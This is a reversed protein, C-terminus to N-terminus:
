PLEYSEAYKAIELSWTRKVKNLLVKMKNGTLTKKEIYSSSQKTIFKVTICGNLRAKNRRHTQLTIISQSEKSSNIVQSTDEETSLVDYYNTLNIM